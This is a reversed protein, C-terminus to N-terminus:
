ARTATHAGAVTSTFTEVEGGPAARRRAARRFLVAAIGLVSLSAVLMLSAVADVVPTVGFRLQSFLYVPLTTDTGVIFNSVLFEDMSWVWVIIATAFLTPAIIPFTVTRLARAATSGLDRAAEELRGDFRELRAHVILVVFPLTLWVHALVTPWFGPLLDLVGLTTLIAVGVVVGPVLLPVATLGLLAGRLRFRRRAVAFAAPVGIPLALVVALLAVLASKGVASTFGSAEFVESYSSMTLSRIPLTTSTAFSMLVVVVLPAYLVITVVGVFAHWGFRASAPGRRGRPRRAPRASDIRRILSALAKAVALVGAIVVVFALLTVFSLAGGLPLDGAPGFQDAIARGVLFGSRGGVLQPTLYDAGALLVVFVFAATVASASLPLTVRLFTRLPSEGLDRSAELLERPVNQLASYIPLMALPILITTLTLTVAFRGYLLFRLPEDILGLELLGRNVFGTPGLILKWAFVRVVYSAFMPAILLVLVLVGRRIRFTIAYALAYAIPITFAAVILAVAISRLILKRYLDEGLVERYSALTFTEEVGFFASEFFSYVLLTCIPVVLLAALYLATPAAGLPLWRGRGARATVARAVVSDRDLDLAIADGPEFAGHASGVPVDVRLLSGDAVEVRLAHCNGAFWADAVTGSLVGSGDRAVSAAEPRVVVGVEDGAARDVGRARAEIVASAGTLRITAREGDLALLTGPLISSEGVFGAVFVSRPDSYIESPTGVQEISGANMVVIRDSMTLAEAQDHTVYVFTTRFTRHIRRLEHQMQKRLQLDLASLPEDLLLVKPRNVLARALAVRQAQGGSIESVRRAALAELGLAALTEDVRTRAEAAPVRHARLGYEVNGRVDLHPFLAYNQFVLNVARREPPHATVDVEDLLIRGDDPETLGAVIRLLTTKGCGSPGLLTM